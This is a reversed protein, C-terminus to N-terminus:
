HHRSLLTTMYVKKPFAPVTLLSTDRYMLLKRVPTTQEIRFIVKPSIALIGRKRFKMAHVLSRDVRAKGNKEVFLYRVISYMPSVILTM